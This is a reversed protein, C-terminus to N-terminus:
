KILLIKRTSQIHDSSLRVFYVGSSVDDAYWTVSYTGPSHNQNKSQWVEQGLVNYITFALPAAKSLTYPIIIQSNFPNPYPDLLKTTSPVVTKDPNLDNLVVGLEGNANVQQAFAGDLGNPGNDWVVVVGGAGDPTAQSKSEVAEAIKVNQDWIPHLLHDYKQVWLTSDGGSWVALVSSDQTSQVLNYIPTSLQTTDLPVGRGDYLVHGQCNIAQLYGRFLYPNYQVEEHWGIVLTTDPLGQMAGYFRAPLMLSDVAVVGSVPSWSVQGRSDIHQARIQHQYPYNVAQDRYRGVVFLGGVGDSKIADPTFGPLYVPEAWQAVGTSDYCQFYQNPWTAIVGGSNDSVMSVLGADVESAILLGSPGLMKDGWFSLRQLYAFLPNQEPPIYLATDSEIWLVYTDGDSGSVIQGGGQFTTDCDLWLPITDIGWLLNGDSDIHQLRTRGKEVIYSFDITDVSVTELFSCIVGGAGDPIMNISANALHNSTWFFRFPYPSYYINGDCSIHQIHASNSYYHLGVWYGNDGVSVIGPYTSGFPSIELQNDLSTGWDAFGRFPSFFSIIVLLLCPSVKEIRKKASKM